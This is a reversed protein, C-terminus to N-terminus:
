FRGSLASSRAVRPRPAVGTPKKNESERLRQASADRETLPQGNAQTLPQPQTEPEALESALAQRPAQPEPDGFGTITRHSIAAPKSQAHAAAQGLLLLVLLLAFRLLTSLM